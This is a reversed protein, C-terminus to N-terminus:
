ENYRRYREEVAGAQADGRHVLVGVRQRLSEGKKLVFPKGSRADPRRPGFTGYDRTLWKAPPGSDPHVFLALGEVISPAHGEGGSTYDVWRATKDCTGKQGEGGESNVLKGGGKPAFAADLRIYPWAYHVADSAFTVDGHSATVTFTLDVLYEGNGLSVVRMTRREDIVPITEDMEWVLTAGTEARAGEVRDPLFGIHRIRDKFPSAPDKPNKRSYWANYFSAKRQGALQVTDAFWFSRHHPYPDARQVTMSRGSPSRVPYFHPLDLDKGYLYVFAEKGEVLVQMRGQADDRKFEVAPAKAAADEALAAGPMVGLMLLVAYRPLSEAATIM